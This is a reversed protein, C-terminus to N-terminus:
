LKSKAFNVEEQTYTVLSDFSLNVLECSILEALSKYNITEVIIGAITKTLRLHILDLSVQLEMDEDVVTYALSIDELNEPEEFDNFETIYYDVILNIAEQFQKNM